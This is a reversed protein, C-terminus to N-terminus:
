YSRNFRNIRKRTQLYTKGELKALDDSKYVYDFFDRHHTMKLGPFSESIWRRAEPNIMVVSWESGVDAALTLIERFLEPNAPGTPPRIQTANNIHSM